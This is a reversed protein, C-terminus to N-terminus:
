VAQLTDLLYSARSAMATEPDRDTSDWGLLGAVFSLYLVSGIEYPDGETTIDGQRQGSIVLRCFERELAPFGGGQSGHVFMLRTLPATQGLVRGAYGFLSEIRERTTLSKSLYHDVLQLLRPELDQALAQLIAPKGRYYNFLSARSIGAAEAIDEVATAEVGSEIFLKGAEALIRRATAQKKAERSVM